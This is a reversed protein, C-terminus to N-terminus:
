AGELLRDRSRKFHYRPLHDLDTGTVRIVWAKRPHATSHIVGPGYGRTEGPMLTYHDSRKLVVEEESEPNVRQYETM